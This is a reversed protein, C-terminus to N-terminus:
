LANKFTIDKVDKEGPKVREAGWLLLGTIILFIGVYLVRNFLAEFQKELLIGM